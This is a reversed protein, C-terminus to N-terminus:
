ETTSVDGVSSNATWSKLVHKTMSLISLQAQTQHNWTPSDLLFRCCCWLSLGFAGSRSSSLFVFIFICSPQALSQRFVPIQVRWEHIQIKNLSSVWVETCDHNQISIFVSKKTVMAGFWGNYGSGTFNKKKREMLTKRLYCCSNVSFLPWM